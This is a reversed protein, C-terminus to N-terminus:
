IPKTAWGAEETTPISPAQGSPYNTCLALWKDGDLTVILFETGNRWEGMNRCLM